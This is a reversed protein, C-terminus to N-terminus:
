ARVRFRAVTDKQFSVKERLMMSIIYKDEAQCSLRRSSLM